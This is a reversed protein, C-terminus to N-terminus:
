LHHRPIFFNYEMQALRDGAFTLTLTNPAYSTLDIVSSETDSPLSAELLSAVEDRHMGIQVGEPTVYQDGTVVIRYIHEQVPRDTRVIEVVIGPSRYRYTRGSFERTTEFDIQEARELRGLAPLTRQDLSRLLQANVLQSLPILVPPGTNLQTPPPILVDPGTRCASASFFLLLAAAAIRVSM